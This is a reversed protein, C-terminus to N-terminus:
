LWRRVRRKFARYEEGFKEELIREEPQIQFRTLIVMFVPILLVTLPNQLWWMVGFLIFVMGLYMPNRTLRYLGGTVLTTTRTPDMPWITTHARFFTMVAPLDFCLGLGILALTIPIHLPLAMSTEPLARDLGVMVGITLLLWVPPPIKLELWTM